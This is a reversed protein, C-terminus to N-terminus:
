LSNEKSSALGRQEMMLAERVEDLHGESQFVAYTVGMGLVVLGLDSLSSRGMAIVVIGLRM